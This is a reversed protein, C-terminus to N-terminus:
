IPDYRFEMLGSRDKLGNPGLLPIELLKSAIHEFFFTERAVLAARRDNLDLPLSVATRTARGAALEKPMIFGAAALCALAGDHTPRLSLFLRNAGMADRYPNHTKKAVTKLATLEKPLKFTAVISPFCLSFDLIRLADVEISPRIELIALIRFICHYADFVPNYVLM